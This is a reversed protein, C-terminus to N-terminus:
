AISWLSLPGSATQLEGIEEVKQEHSQLLIVMASKCDTLVAGGSSARVIDSAQELLAAGPADANMIDIVLGTRVSADHGIRM